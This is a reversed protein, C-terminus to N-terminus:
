KIKKKTRKQKQKEKEITFSFTNPLCLGPHTLVSHCLIYILWMFTVHCLLIFNTFLVKAKQKYKIVNYFTVTGAVCFQNALFNNYISAKIIRKNRSKRRNKKKLTKRQIIDNFCKRIISHQLIQSNEPFNNLFYQIEQFSITFWHGYSLFDLVKYIIIKIDIITILWNRPSPVFPIKM